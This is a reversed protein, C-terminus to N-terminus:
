LVPLYEAEGGTGRHAAGAGRGMGCLSADVIIDRDKNAMMRVFHMSLSFSLQQNNHSHFDLKISPDLQADLVKVIRELDDEYMAGFTDVISLASAGSGSVAGALSLLDADSYALTNAAQLFVTYGKQYRM